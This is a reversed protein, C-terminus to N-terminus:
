TFPCWVGTCVTSHLMVLDEFSYRGNLPVSEIGLTEEGDRSEWIKYVRDGWRLCADHGFALEAVVDRESRMLMM